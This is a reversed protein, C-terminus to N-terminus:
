LNSKIEDRVRKLTDLSLDQRSHPPLGPWGEDLWSIGLFTKAMAYRPIIHFHTHKDKMMLMQYNIKDYNFLSKLCTELDKVLVQFNAMEEPTIDSFREMHRQTIAVCSGLTPGKSRVLLKWHKYEKVLLNKEDFVDFIDCCSM